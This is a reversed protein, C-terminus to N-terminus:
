ASFKAVDDTVSFYLPPHSLVLSLKWTNVFSGANNIKKAYIGVSKCSAM